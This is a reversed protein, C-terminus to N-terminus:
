RLFFWEILSLEPASRPGHKIWQNSSFWVSARWFFLTNKYFYIKRSRNLWILALRKSTSNQNQDSQNRALVFWVTVVSEVWGRRNPGTATMTSVLGTNDANKQQPAVGGSFVVDWGLAKNVRTICDHEAPTQCHPQRGGFGGLVERDKHRGRQREAERLGCRETRKFHWFYSKKSFRMRFTMRVFPQHCFNAWIFFYGTTPTTLTITIFCIISLPTRVCVKGESGHQQTRPM